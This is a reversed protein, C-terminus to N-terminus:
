YGANVNAVGEIFEKILLENKVGPSSEVGSSVDVAWPGIAQIAQSVNAPNLGGALVIPINKLTESDNSLSQSNENLLLQWDFSQGTGGYTDLHYSDVLLSQASQYQKIASPLSQEDQIRIAKVYAQEAAECDALSEDGHFQLLDLGLQQSIRKVQETSENVFLGVVTVYPPLCKIIAQAQEPDIYRPSKKYFVLGIADAGYHASTLADERRTIGCIKM